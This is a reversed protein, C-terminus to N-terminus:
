WDMRAGVAQAAVMTHGASSSPLMSWEAPSMADIRCETCAGSSGLYYPPVGRGCCKCQQWGEPVREGQEQCYAVVESEIVRPTVEGREWAADVWAMSPLLKALRRLERRLRKVEHRRLEPDIAKMGEPSELMRLRQGPVYREGAQKRSAKRACAVAVM